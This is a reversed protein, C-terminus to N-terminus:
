EPRISPGDVFRPPILIQRPVDPVGRENQQIQTVVLDVAAAAVHPRRHDIGAWNRMTPAWDHVVLAIDEPIRLGLNNKLWAAVPAHFSILADPRHKRVWACFTPEDRDLANHPMLLLPVRRGKPVGQQHHLVAGSYTHDARADVWHTVAVGIRKYGRRELVAIASLIGDMMNTSARHLQPSVLGYGFTASAFPAYDLEASFNRSSQPSVLMGEIGRAALIKGLRAPGLGDRGLWFERAEYGHREARAQIDELAMYRYADDRLEDDPLYDRVVALVTGAARRAVKRGRVMGMLRAMLPDPRYGLRRAAEEVVARTEPSVKPSGRLVRSVTMASVGAERAVAAAGVM